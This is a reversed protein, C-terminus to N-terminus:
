FDKQTSSYAFYATYFIINLMPFFLIAKRNHQRIKSKVSEQKSNEGKKGNLPRICSDFSEILHKMVRDLFIHYAIIVFITTLHWAFWIDMDKVYSTKPLENSIANILTLIVLLSTGAGIFRDSSNDVDIFLTSYGFLWLVISPVFITLVQNRNNRIMPITFTYVAAKNTTNINQSPDRITFQSIYKSGDYVVPGDFRFELKTYM